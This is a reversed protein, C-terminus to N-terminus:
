ASLRAQINHHLLDLPIYSSQRPNNSNIGQWKKNSYVMFKTLSKRDSGFLQNKVKDISVQEKNFTYEDLIVLDPQLNNYLLIEEVGFFTYVKCKLEKEIKLALIQIDINESDILFITPKEM